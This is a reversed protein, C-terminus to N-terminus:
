RETLRDMKNEFTRQGRKKQLSNVTSDRVMYINKTRIQVENNNSITDKEEGLIDHDSYGGPITLDDFDM